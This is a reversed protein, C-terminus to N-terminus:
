KRMRTQLIRVEEGLKKTQETHRDARVANRISTKILMENDKKLQEIEAIRSKIEATYYAIMDNYRKTPVTKSQTEKKPRQLSKKRRPSLLDKFM